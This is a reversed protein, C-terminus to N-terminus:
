SYREIHAQLYKDAEICAKVKRAVKRAERASRCRLAFARSSAGRATVRVTSDDPQVTEIDLLAVRLLPPFASTEAADPRVLTVAREAGVHLRADVDREDMRSLVVRFPRWPPTPRRLERRWEDRAVLATLWGLGLAAIAVLWWVNPESGADRLAGPAFRAAALLALVFLVFLLRRLVESAQGAVAM